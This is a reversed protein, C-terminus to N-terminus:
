YDVIRGTRKSQNAEIQSTKFHHNNNEGSNIESFELHKKLKALIHPPVMTTRAFHELSQFKGIFDRVDIIHKALKTDIHPLQHITENPASNVNIISHITKRKHINHLNNDWQISVSDNHPKGLTKKIITVYTRRIQLGHIIAVIWTCLIIGCAIYSILHTISFIIILLIGNILIILYIFGAITWEKVKARVGIYIFALSTGFGFPIFLLVVWLSHILNLKKNSSLETQLTM